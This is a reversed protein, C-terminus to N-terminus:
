ADGIEGQIFTVDLHTIRGQDVRIALRGALREPDARWAYDGAARDGDAHVVLLLIEDDPPNDRYAAAVAARGIFPGAEVGAFTMEVNGALHDVMESFDGSRVGANFRRVHDRLVGEADEESM